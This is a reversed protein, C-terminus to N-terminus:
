ACPLYEPFAQQTVLIQGEVERRIHVWSSSPHARGPPIVLLHHPESTEKGLEQSELSSGPHQAM